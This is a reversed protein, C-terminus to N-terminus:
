PPPKWCQTAPKSTGATTAVDRHRGGARRNCRESETATRMDESDSEIRESPPRRYARRRRPRSNSSAAPSPLRRGCTTPWCSAFEDLRENQRELRRERERRETVDRGVGRGRCTRRGGSSGARQTRVDRRGRDDRGRTSARNM